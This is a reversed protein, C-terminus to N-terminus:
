NLRLSNSCWKESICSNSSFRPTRNMKQSSLEQRCGPYRCFHTQCPSRRLRVMGGKNYCRSVEPPFPGSVRCASRQKFHRPEYGAGSAQVLTALRSDVTVGIPWDVPLVDGEPTVRATPIGADHWVAIIEARDDVALRAEYREAIRREIESKIVTDSRYDLNARVLLEDYEIGNRALWSATLLSWKEERGTVVLVAFGATRVRVALDAVAAHPPCNISASHFKHFNAKFRTAGPPAAVFHQIGRVDCLTGDVDFIVAESKTPSTCGESDTV